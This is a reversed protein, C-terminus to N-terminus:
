RAEPFRLRLCSCICERLLLAVYYLSYIIGPIKSASASFEGPPLTRLPAVQSAVVSFPFPVPCGLSVSRM